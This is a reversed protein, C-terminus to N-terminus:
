DGTYYRQHNKIERFFKKHQIFIQIAEQRREILMKDSLPNSLLETFYFGGGNTKCFNLHTALGIDAESDFLGIDKITISDVQMLKM